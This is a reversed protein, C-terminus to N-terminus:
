GEQNSGIWPRNLWDFIRQKEALNLDTHLLDATYDLPAEELPRVLTTKGEWTLPEDPTGYPLYPGDELWIVPSSPAKVPPHTYNAMQRVAAQQLAPLSGAQHRAIDLAMLADTITSKWWVDKKTHRTYSSALDWPKANLGREARLTDYGHFPRPMPEDLNMRRFWAAM